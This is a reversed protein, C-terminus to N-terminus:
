KRDTKKIIYEPITEFALLALFGLFVVGGIISLLVLWGHFYLALSLVISGSLILVSKNMARDFLKDRQFENLSTDRTARKDVVSVYTILALLTLPVLIFAM